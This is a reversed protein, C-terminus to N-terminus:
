ATLCGTACLIRCPLLRVLYATKARPVKDAKAQKAAKPQKAVPPLDAKVKAVRDKDANALEQMMWLCDPQSKNRSTEAGTGTLCPKQRLYQLCLLATHLSSEQEIFSQGLCASM